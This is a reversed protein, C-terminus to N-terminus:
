TGARSRDRRRALWARGRTVAVVAEAAGKAAAEAAKEAGVALHPAVDDDFRERTNRAAAVVRPKTETYTRRGRIRLAITTRRTVVAAEAAARRAAVAADAAAQRHEAYDADRATRWGLRCGAIVFVFLSMGAAMFAVIFTAGVFWPPDGVPLGIWSQIPGTIFVSWGGVQLVIFAGLTILASVLFFVGSVALVRPGDRIRRRAPKTKTRLASLEARCVGCFTHAVNNVANCSGCRVQDSILEGMVTAGYPRAPGAHSFRWANGAARGPAARQDHPMM